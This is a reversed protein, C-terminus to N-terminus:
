ESIEQNELGNTMNTESKKTPNAEDKQEDDTKAKSQSRKKFRFYRKIQKEQLLLKSSMKRTREM